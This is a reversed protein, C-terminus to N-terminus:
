KKEGTGGGDGGAEEHVSVVEAGMEKAKKQCAELQSELQSELSTGKEAQRDTSVRTYIVARPPQGTRDTTIM